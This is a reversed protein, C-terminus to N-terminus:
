FYVDPSACIFAARSSCPAAPPSPSSTGLPCRGVLQAKLPRSPSPTHPHGPLAFRPFTFFHLPAPAPTLTPCMARSPGEQLHTRGACTESCKQTMGTRGPSSYLPLCDLHMCSCLGTIPRYHCSELTHAARLFPVKSLKPPTQRTQKVM